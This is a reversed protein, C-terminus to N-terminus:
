VSLYKDFQCSLYNEKNWQNTDEEFLQRLELDYLGKKILNSLEIDDNEINNSLNITYDKNDYIFREWNKANSFFESPISERSGVFELNLALAESLVIPFGEYLSPLVMLKALNMFKYPNDNFPLINVYQKINLANILEELSHKLEGEGLIILRIDRCNEKKILYYFAKILKWQAKQRTIRGINLIYLCDTDVNLETIAEKSKAILLEKNVYNNIVVIKDSKIKLKKVLDSKVQESVAILKTEKRMNYCIKIFEFLFCRVIKSGIKEYQISLLNHVTLVRHLNNQPILQVLINSRELFSFLCDPKNKKIFFFLKFYLYLQQLAKFLINHTNRKLGSHYLNYEGYLVFVDVNFKNDNLYQIFDLLIKEAGGSKIQDIILLINKKASNM